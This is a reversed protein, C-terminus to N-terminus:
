VYAQELFTLLQQGGLKLAELFVGVEQRQSALHSITFCWGAEALTYNIGLGGQSTPAFAFRIVPRDNGLTSTSLFDTTFAQYGPIKFFAPLRGPAQQAMLQLGFLHRNAGRGLKASKIRSKHEALAAEFATKNPKNNLLLTVFALSEQSIPRVCETRGSRFHSADVAEYTNRIIGYTSLQAYQLLFQMLADHSIHEPIRRNKLPITMTNVRMKRAKATYNKQWKPWNKQLSPTLQWEHRAIDPIVNKATSSIPKAAARAVINKLTAGDQWTHECHLFLRGTTTNYCYTAPKYCWLNQNSQFSAEALDADADYQEGIISIHFLDQELFGLLRANEPNKRLTECTKAAANSGLYAPVAVPYPNQETESTIIEIAQRFTEPPYAKKRENLAAVRYYFGKHFIGIHRRGAPAFRYDDCNQRPIRAAGQLIRWQEMCVPTGQPTEPMEIKKHHYEACVSALSFIWEPLNKGGTQLEFGVNSALPLPTRISLYNKLWADILWSQEAQADFAQLKEQLLRGKGKSSLFYRTAAAAKAYDPASLLPRVQKLYHACSEELEPVPLRPPNSM